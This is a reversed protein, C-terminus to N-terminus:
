WVRFGVESILIGDIHDIEQYIASPGIVTMEHTNSALDQYKVKVWLYRKVLYIKKLSLSYCKELFPFSFRKELVIPNILIKYNEKGKRLVIIRKSHGIQNAAFGLWGNWWKSVSKITILLENAIQKAEEFNSVPECKQHLLDNPEKVIM